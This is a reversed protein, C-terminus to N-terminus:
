ASWWSLASFFLVRVEDFLCSAAVNVTALLGGGIARVPGNGLTLSGPGFVVWGSWGLDVFEKLRGVNDLTAEATTGSTFKGAAGAWLVSELAGFVAFNNLKVLRMWAATLSVSTSTWWLIALELTVMNWNALLKVVELISAM